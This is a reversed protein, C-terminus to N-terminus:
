AIRLGLELPFANPIRPALHWSMCPSYGRSRESKCKPM